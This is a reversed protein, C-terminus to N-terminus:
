CMGADLAAERPRTVHQHLASADAVAKLLENSRPNVLLEKEQEAAEALRTIKHRLKCRGQDGAFPYLPDNSPPCGAVGAAFTGFAHQQHQHQHQQHQQGHQHADPQSPRSTTGAGHPARHWRCVLVVM